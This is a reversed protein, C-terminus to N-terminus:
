RQWCENEPATAERVSRTGDQALTFTGCRDGTQANKPTATLTFTRGDSASLNGVAIDYTMSPVRKLSDPFKEADLLYRGTATAIREMWQAAAMLAARAEARRSRRIHEQYSPLALAALIGIVAVVIMAEILTFGRGKRVPHSGHATRCLRACAASRTRPTETM